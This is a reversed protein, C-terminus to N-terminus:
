GRKRLVIKPDFYTNNPYFAPLSARSGDAAAALHLLALPLASDINTEGTRHHSVILGDVVYRELLRRALAVASDLIGSAGTAKHM